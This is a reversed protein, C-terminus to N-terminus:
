LVPRQRLVTLCDLLSSYFKDVGCAQGGNHELTTSILAITSAFDDDFAKHAELWSRIELMERPDIMEDEIARSVLYQFERLDQTRQSGRKPPKYGKDRIALSMFHLEMDEKERHREEAIRKADEDAKRRNEEILEDILRSAESKSLTPPVHGGLDRIYDQQAYTAPESISATIKHGKEECLRVYIKGCTEADSVADHHKLGEIELFEAVTPLKYNALGFINDRVRRYVDLYDISFSEGVDLGYHRVLSTLVKKDFDSYAVVLKNRLLPVLEPWIADFKPADAVQEATIGHIAINEPAFRGGPNIMYTKRSKPVGNEFVVVGLACASYYRSNATEFDIAVFPVIEPISSRRAADNATSQLAAAQPPNVCDVFSDDVDPSEYDARQTPRAIKGPHSVKRTKPSQKIQRNRSKEPNGTGWLLWVCVVCPVLLCVTLIVVSM